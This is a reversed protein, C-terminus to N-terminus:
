AASKKPRVGYEQLLAARQEPTLKNMQEQIREQPSKGPRRQGPKWDQCATQIEEQSKGAEIQTRIFSQLGVVFSRKAHNFVADEGFSSVLSEIDAADLPQYDVTASKGNHDGSTLQATVQM